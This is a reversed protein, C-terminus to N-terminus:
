TLAELLIRVSKINKFFTQFILLEILFATFYKGYINEKKKQNIKNRKIVWKNVDNLNVPNSKNSKVTYVFALNFGYM